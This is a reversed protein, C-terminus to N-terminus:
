YNQCLKEFNGRWEISRAYKKKRLTMAKKAMYEAWYGVQNQVEELEIRLEDLWELQENIRDRKARYCSNSVVVCFCCFVKYCCGRKEQQELM